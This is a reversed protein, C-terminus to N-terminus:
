DEGREILILDLEDQTFLITGGKEGPLSGACRKTQTGFNYRKSLRWQYITIPHVGLYAAAQKVTYVRQGNSLTHYTTNMTMM